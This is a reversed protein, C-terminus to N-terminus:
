RGGELCLSARGAPCPVLRAMLPFDLIAHIAGRSSSTRGDSACRSGAVRLTQATAADSSIGRRSLTTPAPHDSPQTPYKPIAFPKRWPACSLIISLLMKAHEGQLVTRSGPRVDRTREKKNLQYGVVKGTDSKKTEILQSVNYRVLALNDIKSSLIYNVFYSQRLVISKLDSLPGMSVTIFFLIGWTRLSRLMLIASKSRNSTLFSVGILLGRILSSALAETILSVMFMPAIRFTAAIRSRETSSAISISFTPQFVEIIM